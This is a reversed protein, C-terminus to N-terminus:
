EAEEASEEASEEMSDEMSDSFHEDYYADVVYDLYAEDMEGFQDTVRKKMVTNLLLYCQEEPLQPSNVHISHLLRQVSEQTFVSDMWQNLAETLKEEESVMNKTKRYSRYSTILVAPIGVGIIAIILIMMMTNMFHFVDVLELILVAIGIVEILAFAVLTSFLDSRKERMSVYPKSPRHVESSLEDSAEVVTDEDSDAEKTLIEKAGHYGDLKRSLANSSEVSYFASFHKKAKTVDKPSVSIIYAKEEKNEHSDSERCKAAIGSYQLYETFKQALEKEAFNILDQYEANEVDELTAVLPTNCEPCNHIGEKYEEKCVPCWPM